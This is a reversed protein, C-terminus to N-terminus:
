KINLAEELKIKGAYLAKGIIVGTIRGNRLQKIKKVDEISSIGGAIIIDCDIKKSITEIFEINAGKLTGDRTIDTLIITRIGLKILKKATYELDLASEQEWGRLAIKDKKCDISVIIKGEFRKVARRIFNKSLAKTGIISFDIGRRIVEELINLKRIGGGYQVPVSFAKKIKEALDLHKPFGSFAGDLDVIHLRKAGKEVWLKAVQLPNQSYVTEKEKRGQWLRVCRGQKLDIAPIILLPADKQGNKGRYSGSNQM